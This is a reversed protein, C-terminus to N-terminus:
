PRLASHWLPNRGSLHRQLVRLCAASQLPSSCHRATCGRDDRCGSRFQRVFVVRGAETPIWAGGNVWPGWEYFTTVVPAEQTSFQKALRQIAAISPPEAEFYYLGLDLDSQEHQLERAYSGGLTIAVLGPIHRLECVLRKLLRQKSEPVRAPIELEFQAM